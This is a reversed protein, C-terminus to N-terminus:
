ETEKKGDDAQEEEEERKESEEPTEATEEAQAEMIAHELELEEANDEWASNFSVTIDTNFMKNIKEVGERRCALMDDILPILSDRNMENESDTLTERKMNYNADLGLENFESAKLYQEYEILNKIQNNAGTNAYPQVKLNEFFQVDGIIGLEGDRVRELFREGSVRTRDDGASILSQVRTMISNINMSLENELLATGYKRFLPLLGTYMSDGRVIICEDNIKLNASYNLAPNSVTFVTPMYNYDPEGGLGGYSAYLNDKYKFVGVYGNVQLYLEFIRAPITEPLGDYKFMCQTRALMYKVHERLANKKDKFDWLGCPINDFVYKYENM